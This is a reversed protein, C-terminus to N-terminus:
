SPPSRSVQAESTVTQWFPTSRALFAHFANASESSRPPHPLLVDKDVDESVLQAVLQAIDQPCGHPRPPAPGPLPQTHGAGVMRGADGAGPVGPLPLCRHGAEGRRGGRVRGHPTPGGTGLEEWGGQTARRRREDISVSWHRSPRRSEPPERVWDQTQPQQGESQAGPQGWAVTPSLPPSPQRHEQPLPLESKKGMPANSLHEPSDM